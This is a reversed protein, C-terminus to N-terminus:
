QRLQSVREDLRAQLWTADELADQLFVSSRAQRTFSSATAAVFNRHRSVVRLFNTVIPRGLPRERLLLESLSVLAKGCNTASQTFASAESLSARRLGRLLVELRALIEDAVRVDSRLLEEPVKEFRAKLNEISEQLKQYRDNLDKHSRAVRGPNPFDAGKKRNEFSELLDALDHLLKEFSLTLDKDPAPLAKLIDEFSDLLEEFGRILSEFGEIREANKGGTAKLVDHFTTLLKVLGHLLDEFSQILPKNRPAFDKIMQEFDGIREQLEALQVEFEQLLRPNKAAHESVLDAFSALLAEDGHLLTEYNKILAEDEPSLGFDPDHPIHSQILKAFSKLLDALPDSWSDGLLESFSKALEVNTPKGAKILNEFSSLLKELDRILKWFSDLFTLEDAFPFTLQAHLLDEFSKLSKTFGKLLSEFSFVSDTPTPDFRHLLDEFSALLRAYGHLVDEFSHLLKIFRESPLEPPDDFRKRAEKDGLKHLKEELDDISKQLQRLLEELKDLEAGNPAKEKLADEFKKLSSELAKIKTEEKEADDFSPDGLRRRHERLLTRLGSQTDAQLQEISQQRRPRHPRQMFNGGREFFFRFFENEGSALTKSRSAATVASRYKTPETSADLNAVIRDTSGLGNAVLTV